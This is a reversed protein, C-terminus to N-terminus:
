LHFNGGEVAENLLKTVMHKVLAIEGVYEFKYCYVSSPYEVAAPNIVTDYIESFAMDTLVQFSSNSNRINIYGGVSRSIIRVDVQVTVPRRKGLNGFYYSDIKDNIADMEDDTLNHMWGWCNQRGANRFYEVTSESFGEAVFITLVLGSFPHYTSTVYQHIRYCSRKPMSRFNHANKEYCRYIKPRKRAGFLTQIKSGIYTLISRISISSRNELYNLIMSQSFSFKRILRQISVKDVNNQFAKLQAVLVNVPVQKLFSLLHKPNDGVFGISRAFEFATNENDTQVTLVNNFIYDGMLIAKHFLDAFPSM